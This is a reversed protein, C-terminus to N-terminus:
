HQPANAELTEPTAAVKKIRSVPRGEFDENVIEIIAQCHLAQETEFGAPDYPCGVAKLFERLYFRAKRAADEDIQGTMPGSKVLRRNALNSNFYAKRGLQDGEELITFEWVIMDSGDSKTPKMQSGSIEARYMGPTIPVDVNVFDTDIRPM